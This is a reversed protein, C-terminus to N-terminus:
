PKTRALGADGGSSVGSVWSSRGLFARPNSVFEDLSLVRHCHSCRKTREQTQRQRDSWSSMKGLEERALKDGSFSPRPACLEAGRHEIAALLLITMRKEDRERSVPVFNYGDSGVECSGLAGLVM